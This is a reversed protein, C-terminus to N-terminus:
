QDRLAETLPRFGPSQPHTQKRPPSDSPELLLWPAGSPPNAAVQDDMFQFAELGLDARKWVSFFRAPTHWQERERKSRRKYSGPLWNMFSIQHRRWQSCCSGDSSDLSRVHTSLLKLRAWMKTVQPSYGVLSRQGHSEGPLFVPTTAMGEELSRELGPISSCRKHRWSRCSSEKGSTGCPSFSLSRSNKPRPCLHSTRREEGGAETM